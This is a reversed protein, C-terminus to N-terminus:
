STPPLFAVDAQRGHEVVRRERADPLFRVGRKDDRVHPAGLELRDLAEAAGRDDEVMVFREPVALGDHVRVGVREADVAGV